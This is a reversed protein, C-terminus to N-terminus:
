AAEINEGTDRILRYGVGHVSKVTYGSGRIKKRLNSVHADVARRVVHVGDGWVAEILEDRPFVHDPSKMFFMLLKFEIPTLDLTVGAGGGEPEIQVKQLVVDMHVRGRRLQDGVQRRNQVKSLRTEVRAKLELPHFPKVIYDEAGSSLGAVRDQVEGKGTLFIVPLDRTEEAEQLSKCFELGSGDPLGIDLIVLDVERMSLAKRAENLSATTIVEHDRNLSRDVVMRVEPSDEVVLLCAM